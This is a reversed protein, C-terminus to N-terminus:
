SELRGPHRGAPQPSSGFFMGYVRAPGIERVAQRFAVFILVLIRAM